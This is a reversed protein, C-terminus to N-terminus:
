PQATSMTPLVAGTLRALYEEVEAIAALQDVRAADLKSRDTTRVDALKKDILDLTRRLVALKESAIDIMGDIFRRYSRSEDDNLQLVSITVRGASSHAEVYEGRYRLHDFMAHDCPNPVFERARQQAVTPWFDGKRSNCANCAYFLNSYECELDPFLTQPRYHDTGFADYGKMGDPLRCYVCQRSFEQQLHPKYTKYQQYPGPSLKRRHRAKPYAFPTM